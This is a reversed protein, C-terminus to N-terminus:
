WNEGWEHCGKTIEVAACLQEVQDTDYDVAFCVIQLQQAPLVRESIMRLMEVGYVFNCERWRNTNIAVIIGADKALQQFEDLTALASYDYVPLGVDFPNEMEAIEQIM